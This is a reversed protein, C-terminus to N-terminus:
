SVSYVAESHFTTTTLTGREPPNHQRHPSGNQRDTRFRRHFSTFSSWLGSRFLTSLFSCVFRCRGEVRSHCALSSAPTSFQKKSLSGTTLGEPRPGSQLMELVSENGPSMHLDYTREELAHISGLESGKYPQEEHRHRM